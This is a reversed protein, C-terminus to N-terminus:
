CLVIGKLIVKYVEKYSVLFILKVIFDEKEVVGDFKKSKFLKFNLDELGNEKNGFGDEFVCEELNIM